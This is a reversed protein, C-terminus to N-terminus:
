YMVAAGAETQGLNRYGNGEWMAGIAKPRTGVGSPRVCDGENVENLCCFLATQRVAVMKGSIVSSYPCFPLQKQTAM